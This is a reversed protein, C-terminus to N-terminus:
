NLIAEVEVCQWMVMDQNYFEARGTFTGKFATTFPIRTSGTLSVTEGAPLGCMRWFHRCVNTTDKIRLGGDKSAVHYQMIAYLVDVAPTFTLFVNVRKQPTLVPWPIVSFNLTKDEPGCFTVNTVIIDSTSACYGLVHLSVLLFLLRQTEM